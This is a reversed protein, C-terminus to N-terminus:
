PRRRARWRPHESRWAVAAHIQEPTLHPWILLCDEIGHARWHEAVDRADMRTGDILPRDWLWGPTNFSPGVEVVRAVLVGKAYGREQVFRPLDTVDVDSM